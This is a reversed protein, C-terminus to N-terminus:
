IKYITLFALKALILTGADPTWLFPTSTFHEKKTKPKSDPNKVFNKTPPPSAKLSPTLHPPPSTDSVSDSSPPSPFINASALFAGVAFNSCNKQTKLKFYFKRICNQAIFYDFNLSFHPLILFKQPCFKSPPVSKPWFTPIVTPQLTRAFNKGGQPVGTGGPFVRLIQLQQIKLSLKNIVSQNSQKM